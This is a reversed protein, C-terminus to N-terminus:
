EEEEEEEEADYESDANSDVDCGAAMVYYGGPRLMRVSVKTKEALASEGANLFYDHVEMTFPTRIWKTGNWDLIEMTASSAHALSTTLRGVYEIGESGVIWWRRRNDRIVPVIKDPLIFRGDHTGATAQRAASRPFSSRTRDGPAWSDVGYDIFRIDFTNAVPLPYEEPSDSYTKAWWHQMPFEGFTPRANIAALRQSLAAVQRELALLRDYNSGHPASM